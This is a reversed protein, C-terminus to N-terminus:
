AVQPLLGQEAWIIKGDATYRTGWRQTVQATLFLGRGDEDGARAHRMRPAAPSGDHVECTLTQDRLLRLQIPGEAHRIANTVLESAVLQSSFVMDALNWSSLQREVLSRVTAVVAPDSPLDWTAVQDDDFVHTRALLLVANPRPAGDLLLETTTRSAEDLSVRRDDALRRTLTQFPTRGREPGDGALLGPTYLAITSQPPLDTDATGFPSDGTGLAVGSPLDAPEVAGEPYAILPAPHGASAVSLHGTTPDYVVYACTAGAVGGPVPTSTADPVEPRERSIHTVLDDLRALVEDPGLDLEALTHIAARLRGMAASALVGGGVVTGVVLALRAGPLPIADFWDGGTGEAVGSHAIDMASQPPFRSPLLEQRVTRALAHERTFRRANDICVAARSSVERATVIDDDEFTRSTGFRYFTALGLTTGRARLPVTLAFLGHGGEGLDQTLRRGSPEPETVRFLRPEERLLCDDGIPPFPFTTGVDVLPDGSEAGLVPNVAGAVRRLAAHRIVEPEDGRLVPDLIDAVAADCFEPVVVDTLEQATRLIDLTTGIAVGAEALLAFRQEARRRRTIDVLTAAVGVVRGAADQLRFASTSFHRETDPEGPPFGHSDFGVVPVGTELVKTLAAEKEDSNSDPWLDRPRKGLGHAAYIGQGEAAANYRRLRLDTDFICLGVPSQNFLTELTASDTADGLVVPNLTLRWAPEGDPAPEAPRVRVSCKEVHGDKHRLCLAAGRRQDGHSVAGDALLSVAMRGVAESGRYGLLREAEPSWATLVGHRDITVGAEPGAAGATRRPNNEEYTLIPDGM